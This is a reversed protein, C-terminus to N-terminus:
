NIYVLSTIISMIEDAYNDYQDPAGFVVFTLARLKGTNITTTTSAKIPSGDSPNNATMVTIFVDDGNTLAIKKEEVKKLNQLGEFYRNSLERSVTAPKEDVGVPDSYLSVMIRSDEDLFSVVSGRVGSEDITWGPPIALKVDLDQNIYDSTVSDDTSPSSSNGTTNCSLLFFFLVSILCAFRKM